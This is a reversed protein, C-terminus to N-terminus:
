CKLFHLPIRIPSMYKKIDNDTVLRIYYQTKLRKLYIRRLNKLVWYFAKLQSIAIEYRNKFFLYLSFGIVFSSYITGYKILNSLSYNKILSALHNKRWHFVAFPSLASGMTGGGYHYVVSNYVVVVRYDRLHVRWCFDKDDGYVFFDPDFMGAEYFIERRTILAASKAYFINEVPNCSFDKKLSLSPSQEIGCYDVRGGSSDIKTRDRMSLLKSQAVGIRPDSEMVKILEILWNPEVETDSDLLVIFKGRAYKVGINVAAAHGINKTNVIIKIKSKLRPTYKIFDKVCNITGDKSGNDVIIIEFNPYLTHSLSELCRRIFKENNYTIIIISVLMNKRLLEKEMMM